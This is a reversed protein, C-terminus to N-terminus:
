LSLGLRRRGTVARERPLGDGVDPCRHLRVRDVAVLVLTSAIRVGPTAPLRGSVLEDAAEVEDGVGLPHALLDDLQHPSRLTGRSAHRDDEVWGLEIKLDVLAATM